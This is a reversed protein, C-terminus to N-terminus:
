ETEESRAKERLRNLYDRPNGVLCRNQRMARRYGDRVLESIEEDTTDAPVKVESYIEEVDVYKDTSAVFYGGSATPFLGLKNKM